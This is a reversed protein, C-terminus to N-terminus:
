APTGAGARGIHVFNAKRTWNRIRGAASLQVDLVRRPQTFTLRYHRAKVAPFSAITPVEAATAGGGGGGGALASELVTRFQAGDDSVELTLRSQVGGFGGGGGAPAAAPPPPLAASYLAISRAEFPEAFEVQLSVPQGTTAPRLEVGAPRDSAFLQQVDLPGSSSTASKLLDQLRRTGGPLSPFALVCADRYYGLRTTPQPLQSDVTQGGRAYTESWVLTQMALEPTVWPGGSWSWGPCNHMEFQVGLRDAEAAAHQMLKLWGDSLYEVPGKPIGTGVDFIQFGAIGVRKMAELDRTIGDATVNGNMWHWWTKAGADAPPHRFADELSSTEAADASPPKDVLLTLTGAACNEIFRRRNM